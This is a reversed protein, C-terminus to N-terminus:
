SVPRRVFLLQRRTVFNGTFTFGAAIAKAILLNLGLFQVVAFIVVANVALGVVGIAIFGLLEARRDELRRYSFALRISLYYAVFVGSGFSVTAAALYNWSFCTVLLWLIAFDVVLAFGSAVLYGMAERFLLMM